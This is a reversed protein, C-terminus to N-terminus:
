EESTDQQGVGESSVCVMPADGGGGRENNGKTFIFSTRNDILKIIMSRLCSTNNFRQERGKVLDVGNVILRGRSGEKEM